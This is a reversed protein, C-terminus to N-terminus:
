ESPLRPTTTPVAAPVTLLNSTKATGDARGLNPDLGLKREDGLLEVADVLTACLHARSSVQRDARRLYDVMKKEGVVVSAYGAACSLYQMDVLDNGTWRDSANRLRLHTIECLRGLYPMRPVDTSAGQQIWRRVAPQSIGAARACETIEISLDKVLAQLAMERADTATGKTDQLHTALRHYLDAWRQAAVRADDKSELNDEIAASYLAALGTLRRHLLQWPPPFDSPSPPGSAATIFFADPDLTFVGNALPDQRALAAGLERRRVPIPNRMMWGRSLDLLTTILDRRRTGVLPAEALHASAMPLVVKRDRALSVIKAAAAATLEGEIKAPAHLHQSLTVWHLQDLYVVPRDAPPADNDDLSGLEAVVDVDDPLTLVLEGTLLDCMSRLLPTPRPTGSQMEATMEQGDILRVTMTKNEYDTIM